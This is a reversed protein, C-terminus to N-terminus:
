VRRARRTGSTTRSCTVRGGSPTWTRCRLLDSRPNSDSPQACSWASPPPSVPHTKAIHQLANELLDVPADCRGYDGWRGATRKGAAAVGSTARCCLPLECDALAGERYHPDVHTDSLQLVKFRPGGDQVCHVRYVSLLGGAM